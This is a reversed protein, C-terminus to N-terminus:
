INPWARGVQPFHPLLIFPNACINEQSIRNFGDWVSLWESARTENKTPFDAAKTYGAGQRNKKGLVDPGPRILQRHKNM